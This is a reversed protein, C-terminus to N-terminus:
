CLTELLHLVGNEMYSPVTFAAAERVEKAANAVAYSRDARLFMGMDNRNDGFVMTEEKKIGLSKQVLALANGKDVSPDMIDVWKEGSVVVKFTRGWEKELKGALKKVDETCYVAIKFIESQVQAIDEVYCIQYRYGQEMLAKFDKNRSSSFIERENEIVLHCHKMQKLESLLHLMPTRELCVKGLEQGQNEIYAGNSAIFLMKEQVERFLGHISPLSRGSAAAFVIGKQHLRRVLDMYKEPLASGGEEILTGDIDTAILRIM